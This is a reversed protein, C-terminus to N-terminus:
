CEKSAITMRSWVNQPGGPSSRAEGSKGHPVLAAPTLEPRITGAPPKPTFLLERCRMAALPPLEVGGFALLGPAACPKRPPLYAATAQLRRCVLGASYPEAASSPLATAM